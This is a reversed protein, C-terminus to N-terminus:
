KDTTRIFRNYDIKAHNFLDKFKNSNETCFDYTDNDGSKIQVKQGHEDTGISFFTKQQCLDRHYRNAADCM